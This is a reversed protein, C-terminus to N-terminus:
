PTSLFHTVFFRLNHFNSFFGSLSEANWIGMRLKPYAYEQRRDAGRIMYNKMEYTSLYLPVKQKLGWEMLLAASGATLAAAASTGSRTVYGTRLDPGTVDVGPAAFDPKM